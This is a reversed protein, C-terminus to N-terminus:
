HLLNQFGTMCIQFFFFPKAFFQERNRFRLLIIVAAGEGIYVQHVTLQGHSFIGATVKIQQPGNEQAPLIAIIIQHQYQAVIGAKVVLLKVIILRSKGIQQFPFLQSLLQTVDRHKALQIIIDAIGEAAPIVPLTRSYIEPQCVPRHFVM